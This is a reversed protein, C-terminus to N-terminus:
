RVNHKIQNNYYVSIVKSQDWIRNFVYITKGMQKLGWTLVDLGKRWLLHAWGFSCLKLRPSITIFLRTIKKINIYCNLFMDIEFPWVANIQSMAISLQVGWEKSNQKIHKHAIQQKFGTLCFSQRLYEKLAREIIDFSWTDDSSSLVLCLSYYM